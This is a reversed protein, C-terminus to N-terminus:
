THPRFTTSIMLYLAQSILQSHSDLPIMIDLLISPRPTNELAMVAQKNITSILCLTESKKKKKFLFGMHKAQQEYSHLRYELTIKQYKIIFLNFLNM